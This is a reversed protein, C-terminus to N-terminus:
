SGHTLDWELETVGFPRRKPCGTCAYWGNYLKWDHKHFAPFTKLSDIERQQQLCVENLLNVQNVLETVWDKASLSKGELAQLIATSRGLSVPVDISGIPVTMLGEIWSSLIGVWFPQNYYALNVFKECTGIRSKLADASRVIEASLNRREVLVFEM